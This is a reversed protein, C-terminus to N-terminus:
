ALYAAKANYTETIVPKNTGDDFIEAELTTLLSDNVGGDAMPAKRLKLRPIIISTGFYYISSTAVVTTSKLDIELALADTNLYHDLETADNFLMTCTFEASRREYDIDQFVGLGGFGEQGKLNNNWTLEFNKFRAGLSTPTTSSINEAGQTLTSDISINTTAEKWVSANALKLWNETITAAFATASTARTGSGILEAELSLLGSGDDGSEGRITLRNCKIGKYAYQIGGKKHEVQASPLATGVAVPVIKHKYAVQPTDQVTTISGMALGLFAAVDNPKAKPIRVTFGVRNSIIEQSNGHEYGTVEDKDTAVADDWTKDIEFGYLSYANSNTMAVGADYTAEKLYASLMFQEQWGKRVISM